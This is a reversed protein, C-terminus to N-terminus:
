RGNNEVKLIESEKRNIFKNFSVAIYRAIITALVCGVIFLILIEVDM